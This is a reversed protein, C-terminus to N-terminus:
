AHSYPSFSEFKEGLPDIAHWRGLQPDYMKAGCDLWSHVEGWGRRGEAFLEPVALLPGSNLLILLQTVDPIFILAVFFLPFL